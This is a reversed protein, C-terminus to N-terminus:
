DAREDTTEDRLGHTKGARTKRFNGARILDEDLYLYVAMALQRNGTRKSLKRREIRAARGAAREFGIFISPHNIRTLLHERLRRLDTHESLVDDRRSNRLRKCCIM